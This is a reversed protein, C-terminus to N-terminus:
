RLAPEGFLSGKIMGWSLSRVLTGTSAPLWQAEVDHAASWSPSFEDVGQADGVFLHVTHGTPGVLRSFVIRDGAGWSPWFGSYIPTQQGTAM